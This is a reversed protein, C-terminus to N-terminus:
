DRQEMQRENTNSMYKVYTSVWDVNSLVKLTPEYILSHWCSSGWEKRKLDGALYTIYELENNHLQVDESGRSTSKSARLCIHCKSCKKPGCNGKCYSLIGWPLWDEFCQSCWLGIWLRRSERRRYVHAKWLNGRWHENWSGRLQFSAHSPRHHVQGHQGLGWGRFRKWCFSSNVHLWEHAAAFGWQYVWGQAPGFHACDQKSVEKQLQRKQQDFYGRRWAPKAGQSRQLSFCLCPMKSTKSFRCKVIGQLRQCYCFSSWRPSTM